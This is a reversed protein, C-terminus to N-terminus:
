VEMMTKDNFIGDECPKILHRLALSLKADNM